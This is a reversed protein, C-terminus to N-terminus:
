LIRLSRKNRKFDPIGEMLLYGGARRALRPRGWRGAGTKTSSDHADPSGKDDWRDKRETYCSRSQGAGCNGHRGRGHGNDVAGVHVVVPVLRAGGDEGVHVVVTSAVMRRSVARRPDM